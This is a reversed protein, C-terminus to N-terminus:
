ISYPRQEVPGEVGVDCAHQLPQLAPQRTQRVGAQAVHLHHHGVVPEHVGGKLLQHQQRLGDAGRQPVDHLRNAAVVGGEQGVQLLRGAPTESVHLALAVLRREELCM